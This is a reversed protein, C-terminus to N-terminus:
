QIADRIIQKYPAFNFKPRPNFRLYVEIFRGDELMREKRSTMLNAIIEAQSAYEGIAEYVEREVAE